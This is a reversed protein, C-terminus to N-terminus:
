LYLVAIFLVFTVQKKQGQTVSAGVPFCVSLSIKDANFIMRESGRRSEKFRFRGRAAGAGRWGPSIGPEVKSKLKLKRGEDGRRGSCLSPHIAPAPISHSTLKRSSREEQDKNAKPGKAQRKAGQICLRHM